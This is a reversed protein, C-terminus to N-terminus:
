KAESAWGVIDIGSRGCKRDVKIDSLGSADDLYRHNSMGGADARQQPDMQLMPLLFSALLKAEEKSHNYKEHLVAELPWDKLKSIKKLEGKDNFYESTWKGTQLVSTPIKGLLEIIQAIHDDDKSYKSGTQPEFLYDGTLLEFVLCSMSWIDSSAGWFSGLLVEPSRYQRTQIDNTFHHEVWCANGLDVIKVSILEEALATRPKTPSVSTPSKSLQNSTKKEHDDDLRVEEVMKTMTLDNFFSANSRLPSPLPQSGTILSQRRSRRGTRSGPKTKKTEVAARDEEEALKLMKEVDGIEILVNEPKLDTHVIGCERHLYDLGLLVQKTIQKVLKVPIGAFQHRRILGLLNEGLVEFVMCYHTGNPGVHKFSDYLGVVHAKGPHDPNKSSVRELMKIEDIATETYHSASRVVKMAVHRDNNQTDRALWVTSFHGWGLKRVIVYRGNAFKEGIKVPHYGGPCYDDLSEENKQLVEDESDSLDTNVTLKSM